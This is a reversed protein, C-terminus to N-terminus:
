FNNNLGKNLTYIKPETAHNRFSHYAYWEQYPLRRKCIRQTFLCVFYIYFYVNLFYYIMLWMYKNICMVAPLMIYRM